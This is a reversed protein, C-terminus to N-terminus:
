YLHYVYAASTLTACKPCRQVNLVDTYVVVTCNTKELCVGLGCVILWASASTSGDLGTVATPQRAPGGGTGSQNLGPGM